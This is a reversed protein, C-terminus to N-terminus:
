LLVGVTASRLMCRSYPDLHFKLKIIAALGNYSKRLDTVGCSLYVTTGGALDLM